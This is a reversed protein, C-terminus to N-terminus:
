YLKQFVVQFYKTPKCEGTVKKQSCLKVSMIGLAMKEIATQNEVPFSIMHEIYSIASNRASEVDVGKKQAMKEARNIFRVKQDSTPIVANGQNWDNRITTIFVGDPALAQEINQLVNPKQDYNFRTLFADSVIINYKGNIGNFIDANITNWAFQHLEAIANCINLPTKCIDCIDLQKIGARLCLLPMSFDATGLVLVHSDASFYKKLQEIYFKKHWFPNSVVGLSRLTMWNRHYWSCDNSDLYGSSCEILDNITLENFYSLYNETM